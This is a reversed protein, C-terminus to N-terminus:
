TEAKIFRVKKTHPGRPRIRHCLTLTKVYRNRAVQRKKLGKDRDGGSHGTYEDYLVREGVNSVTEVIKSRQRM